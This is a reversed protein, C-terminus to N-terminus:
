SSLSSDYVTIILCSLLHSRYTTVRFLSSLDVFTVYIYICVYIYIYKNITPSGFGQFCSLTSLLSPLNKLLGHHHLPPWSRVELWLCPSAAASSYSSGSGIILWVIGVWLPAHLQLRPRPSFHRICSHFCSAPYSCMLHLVHFPCSM